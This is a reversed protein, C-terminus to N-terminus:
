IHILSLGFNFQQQSLTFFDSTRMADNSFVTGGIEYSPQSPQAFAAGAMLLCAAISFLMRKM